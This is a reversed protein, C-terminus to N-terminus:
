GDRKALCRLKAANERYRLQCSIIQGSIGLRSYVKKAFKRRVMPMVASINVVILKPDNFNDALAQNDKVPVGNMADEKGAGFWDPSTWDPQFTYPNIQCGSLFLVV